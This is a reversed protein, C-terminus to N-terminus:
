VTSKRMWRVVTKLLFWLKKATELGRRFTRRRGRPPDWAECERSHGCERWGRGLPRLEEGRVERHEGGPLVVHVSLVNEHLRGYEFSGVGLRDMTLWGDTTTWPASM